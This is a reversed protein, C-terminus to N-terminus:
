SSKRVCDEGLLFCPETELEELDQNLPWRRLACTWTWVVSIQVGSGVDAGIREGACCMQHVFYRVEALAAHIELCVIPNHTVLVQGHVTAKVHPRTENLLESTKLSM